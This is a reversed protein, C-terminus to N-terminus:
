SSSHQAEGDAPRRRIMRAALFIDLAGLGSVTGRLSPQLLYPRLAPYHSLFYNADWFPFWPLFLLFVGLEFLMLMWLVQLLRQM